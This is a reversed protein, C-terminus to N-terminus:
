PQSCNALSIGVVGMSFLSSPDIHVGPPRRNDGSPRPSNIPQCRPQNYLFLQFCLAPVSSNSDYLCPALDPWRYRLWERSPWRFVSSAQHRICPDGATLLASMRSCRFPRVWARPCPLPAGPARTTPQAVNRISELVLAPQQQRVAPSTPSDIRM